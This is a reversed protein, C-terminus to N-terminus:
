LFARLPLVAEGRQFEEHMEWCQPWQAALEFQESSYAPILVDIIGPLDRELQEHLDLHPSAVAISEALAQRLEIDYDAPCRPLELARSIGAIDAAVRRGQYAACDKLLEITM